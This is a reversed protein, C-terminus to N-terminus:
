QKPHIDEAWDYIVEKYNKKIKGWSKFRAKNFTIDLFSEKGRGINM